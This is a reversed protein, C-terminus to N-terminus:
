KLCLDQHLLRAIVDLLYLSFLYYPKPLGYLLVLFDLDIKVNPQVVYTYDSAFFLLIYHYFNKIFFWSM